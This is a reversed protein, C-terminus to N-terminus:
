GRSYCPDNDYLAITKSFRYTSVRAQNLRRWIIDPHNHRKIPVYQIPGAPNDTAIM